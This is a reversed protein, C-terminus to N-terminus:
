LYFEEELLYLSVMQTVTKLWGEGKTNKILLFAKELPIKV